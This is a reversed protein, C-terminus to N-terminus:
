TLNALVQELRKVQQEKDEIDQKLESEVALNFMINTLVLTADITQQTTDGRAQAIYVNLAFQNFAKSKDSRARRMKLYRRSVRKLKKIRRNRDKRANSSTKRTDRTAKRPAPVPQGFSASSKRKDYNIEREEDVPEVPEVPTTSDQLRRAHENILSPDIPIHNLTAAPPKLGTTAEYVEKAFAIAGEVDFVDFYGDVVYNIKNRLETGRMIPPLAKEKLADMIEARKEKIVKKKDGINTRVLDRIKSTYLKEIFAPELEPYMDITDQLSWDNFIIDRKIQICYIKNALGSLNNRTIIKKIYPDDEVRRQTKEYVDRLSDYVQKAESKAIYMGREPTDNFTPESKTESTDEVSLYNQLADRIKKM